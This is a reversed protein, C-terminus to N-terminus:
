KTTFFGDITGDICRKLSLLSKHYILSIGVLFPFKIFIFYIVFIIFQVNNAYIKEFKIMNRTGYYLGYRNLKSSQSGKHWIISSHVCLLNYGAYKARVCLDTDEYYAFYSTELLGVDVFVTTKILMACGSLFQTNIIDNSKPHKRYKSRDSVVGRFFDINGGCSQIKNSNYHFVKPGLIGAKPNSEAVNVLETIFSPDVITDNNLLLVYDTGREMVRRIATNNGEAFGLNDRNEIIEITPYQKSFYEVSGDTSGNDVLLIDYNPYNINKLSELCEITDEKGNWNLIIITVKPNM